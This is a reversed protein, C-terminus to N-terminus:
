TPQIIRYGTCSLLALRYEVFLKNARRGEDHIAAAVLEKGTGSEGQILVHVNVQIVERITDFLENMKADRRIIGAFSQETKLRRRLNNLETVDKLIIIAM